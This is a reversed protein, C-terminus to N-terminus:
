DEYIDGEADLWMRSDDADAYEAATLGNSVRVGRKTTDYFRVGRYTITYPFTPTKATRTQM